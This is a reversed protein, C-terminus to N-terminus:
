EGERIKDIDKHPDDTREFLLDELAWLESNLCAREIESIAFKSSTDDMLIQEIQKIRESVSVSLQNLREIQDIKALREDLNLECSDSNLEDTLRLILEEVDTV